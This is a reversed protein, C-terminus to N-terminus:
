RKLSEAWNIVITAERTGRVPTNVLFRKGDGTAAYQQWNASRDAIRTPFLASPIGLQFAPTTTVAVVMLRGDAALYFLEEGDRRWLPQTGGASSVRTGPPAPCQGSAPRHQAGELAAPVTTVYVEERGDRDSTYAIWRGDPSFRAQRENFETGLVRCAPRPEDLLLAWIDANMGPPVAEFLLLRGDSSGDTPYKSDGSQMLREEPGTQDAMRQFLDYTGLRNSAWAIRGNALWVPKVDSGADVTLKTPIQSRELDFIVIDNAGTLRDPLGDVALHRDDPALWM